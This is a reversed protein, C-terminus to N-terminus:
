IYAIVKDANEKTPNDRFETVVKNWGNAVDEAQKTLWHVENNLEGLQGLYSNLAPTTLEGDRAIISLFYQGYYGQADYGVGDFARLGVVLANAAQISTTIDIM